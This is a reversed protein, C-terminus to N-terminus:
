KFGNQNQYMIHIYNYYNGWSPDVINVRNSGNYTVKYGRKVIKITKIDNNEM